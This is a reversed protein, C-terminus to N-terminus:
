YEEDEADYDSLKAKIFKAMEDVTQFVKVKSDYTGTATKAARSSAASSLGAKM